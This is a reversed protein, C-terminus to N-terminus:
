CGRLANGIALMIEDITITSNNDRDSTPCEVLAKQDLLISTLTLVEDILVQGDENCDGSCPTPTITPNPTVVQDLRFLGQRATGVYIRQSDNPDIALSLVETDESLGTGLKFWTRGSDNSKFVGQSGAYLVGPDSPDTILASVVTGYPWVSKWNRGGDDSKELEASGTVSIYLEPTQHSSISISTIEYQSQNESLVQWTEGSDQSSYARGWGAYLVNPDFPDLALADARGIGKDSRRWSNGGNTSKYVTTALGRPHETALTFLTLPNREDILVSSVWGRPLSSDTRMWSQGRDNSGFLGDVTGAYLIDPNHRAAKLDLVRETRLGWTGANDGPFEWNRGGDISRLTGVDLAGLYITQSNEREILISEIRGGRIGSSAHQWSKGGNTSRFVGSGNTGVYIQNPDTPSIKIDSIPFSGIPSVVENWSDGGDFSEYLTTISVETRFGVLLHQPNSQDIEFSQTTGLSQLELGISSWTDGWDHSRLIGGNWVGTLYVISSDSSDIVIPGFALPISDSISQWTAGGDFSRFLFPNCRHPNCLAFLTNSNSPDFTLSFSNNSPLGHFFPQWTAGGDSSRIFGTQNGLYLTSPSTPNISLTRAAGQLLGHEQLNWTEGGDVSKFFGEDAAVYLTDPNNPDIRVDNPISIPLVLTWNEASDTTRFIGLGRVAAYAVAPDTLSPRLIRIQGGDPGVSEWKESASGLSTNPCVSM